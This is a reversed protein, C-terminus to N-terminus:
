FKFIFDRWVPSALGNWGHEFGVKKNPIDEKNKRLILYGKSKQVKKACYLCEIQYVYM